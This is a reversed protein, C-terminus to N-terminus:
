RDLAAAHRHNGIFGLREIGARRVEALVSDFREYRAEAHPEVHLAPRAPDAALAALRAALASDAIPRGDWSLRGGEDIALRHPPAPPPLDRTDPRPLDVDVKHTATPVALIFMILLVLMLDILPTTNITAIPQFGQPVAWAPARRRM